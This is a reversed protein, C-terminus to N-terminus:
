IREVFKQTAASNDRRALKKSGKKLDITLKERQNSITLDSTTVPFREDV